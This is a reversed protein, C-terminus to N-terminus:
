RPIDPCVYPGVAPQYVEEVTESVLTLRLRLESESSAVIEAPIEKGDEEWVLRSEGVRRWNSLRYTEWCSDQVLIGSDLFVRMKGPPAGADSSLWVRNVLVDPAPSAGPPTREPAACGLAAAAVASLCLARGQM